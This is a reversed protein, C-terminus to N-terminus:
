WPMPRNPQNSPCAIRRKEVRDPSRILEVTPLIVLICAFGKSTMRARSPSLHNM